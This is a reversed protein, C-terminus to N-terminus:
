AARPVEGATTYTEEYGPMSEVSITIIILSRGYQGKRGAALLGVTDDKSHTEQEFGALVLTQGMRMTVRQSFARTSVKPMEVKITNNSYERVADLSTLSANYQLILTRRDLIHPIVTMAFGTTVEGPTIQSTQGYDSTNLSMGALYTDKTTNQVPLPMNNMTVGSGSTVLSTKGYTSLAKLTAQSGKLKSGTITASLEGATDKAMGALTMGTALMLNQDEFLAQLNLGVDSEDEINLQWVRVELAVQRSLKRNFERVFGEVRRLVPASDTVTVTGSAMNATVTGTKSLLAKIATLAENWVDLTLDTNNSQATQSSIDSANVTQGFAGGGSTDNDKSQNTIQNKYATKGAAALLTFTRTGEAAFIVSKAAPDYRWEAGYLSALYRCFAETSGEFRVRRAIDAGGEAQWTLNTLPAAASCVEGLTGVMSMSVYRSLAKDVESLPVSAAGLYPEDVVSVTRSAALDHLEDGRALIDKNSIQPDRVGCASLTLVACFLFLLKRFM